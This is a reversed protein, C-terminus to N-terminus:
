VPAPVEACTNILVNLGSLIVAVKASLMILHTEKFSFKFKLYFKVSILEKRDIQCYPLMPESSPKAGFLRCAMIQFLTPMNCQHM